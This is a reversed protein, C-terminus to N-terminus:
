IKLYCNEPFTIPARGWGEAGKPRPQSSCLRGVVSCLLHRTGPTEAGWHSRPLRQAIVSWQLHHRPQSQPVTQLFTPKLGGAGWVYRPAQPRSEAKGESACPGPANVQLGPRPCPPRRRATPVRPRQLGHEARRARWRPVQLPQPGRWPELAPAGLVWEGAESSIGGKM